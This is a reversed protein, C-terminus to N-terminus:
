IPIASFRYGGKRRGEFMRLGERQSTVNIRTPTQVTRGKELLTVPLLYYAKESWWWGFDDVISSLCCGPSNIPIPWLGSTGTYLTM